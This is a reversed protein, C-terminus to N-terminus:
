AKEVAELEVRHVIANAGRVLVFFSAGKTVASSLPLLSGSGGMGLIGGEGPHDFQQRRDALYQLVRAANPSRLFFSLPSMSGVAKGDQQDLHEHFGSASSSLFGLPYVPVGYQIAGLLESAAPTTPIASSSRIRRASPRAPPLIGPGSTRTSFTRRWCRGPLGLGSRTAECRSAASPPLQNLRGCPPWEKQRARLPLHLARASGQRGEAEVQFDPM